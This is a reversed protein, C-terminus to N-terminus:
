SPELIDDVSVYGVVFLSDAGFFAGLNKGDQVFVRALVHFLFEPAVAIRLGLVSGNGDGEGFLLQGGGRSGFLRGSSGDQEHVRWASM